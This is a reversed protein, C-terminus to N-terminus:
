PLTMLIDALNPRKTMLPEKVPKGIWIFGIIEKQQSDVQFIKYTEPHTSLGGTSWKYAFGEQRLALALLQISCSLTAYDERERFPNDPVKPLVIAVLGSPSAAKQRAMVVEEGTKGKQEALLVALDELKKRTEIGAVRYDWPFTYKHNPAMLSLSLCENLTTLPLEVGEEFKHVTRTKIVLDKFSEFNMM